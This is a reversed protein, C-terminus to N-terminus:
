FFVDLTKFNFPPPTYFQFAIPTEDSITGELHKVFQKCLSVEEWITM